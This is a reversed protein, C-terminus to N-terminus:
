RSTTGSAPRERSIATGALRRIRVSDQVSPSFPDDGFGDLPDIRRGRM